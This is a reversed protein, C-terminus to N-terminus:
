YLFGLLYLPITQRSGILIDDKLVWGNSSTNKLQRATKNKGGIEFHRDQAILDGLGDYTVTIGANQFMSLAFIERLTGVQPSHDLNATLTFYLTTNNLYMKEPKRFVANGKDATYLGRTLGIEKLITLYHTITKDDTKLQQALKHTSLEGPPIIALYSLIKKFQHLNPTKLSYYDAIDEYITKDIVTLLKQHLSKPNEFVFPYYGHALYDKFLGPLRPIQSFTESLECTRTIMDQFTITSYQSGTSFNLYERFSMGNLHYLVGRRSLDHIGSILDISSSGSFVLTIEPYSDYLNKLEQEWNPYKHIEDIFFFQINDHQILDIIFQFLTKQNFYIHDASFYFATHPDAIKQQIYQILLITKGVGRPGILGTLRDKLDFDSLLYRSTAYRSHALTRFYAAKLQDIM